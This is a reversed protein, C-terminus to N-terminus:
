HRWRGTKQRILRELLNWEWIQPAVRLLSHFSSTLSCGALCNEFVQGRWSLERHGTDWGELRMWWAPLLVSLVCRCLLDEYCVKQEKIKMLNVATVLSVLVKALRGSCHVICSDLNPSSSSLSMCKTGAGATMRKFLRTNDLGPALLRDGQRAQREQYCWEHSSLFKLRRTIGKNPPQKMWRRNGQAGM